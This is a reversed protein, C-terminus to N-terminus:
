FSSLSIQSVRRVGWKEKNIGMKMVPTQPSDYSLFKTVAPSDTRDRSSTPNSDEITDM